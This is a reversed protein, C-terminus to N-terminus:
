VAIRDCDFSISQLTHDIQRIKSRGPSVTKKCIVAVAALAIIVFVARQIM